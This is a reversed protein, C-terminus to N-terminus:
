KSVRLRYAREFQDRLTICFQEAIQWVQEQRSLNEALHHTRDCLYDMGARGLESKEYPKQCRCRFTRCKKLIADLDVGLSETEQILWNITLDYM